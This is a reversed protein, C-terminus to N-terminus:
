LFKPKIEKFVKVFRNLFVINVEKKAKKMPNKASQGM